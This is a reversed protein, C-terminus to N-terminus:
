CRNCYDYCSLALSFSYKLYSIPNIIAMHIHQLKACTNNFRLILDNFYRSFKYDEAFYIMNTKGFIKIIQYVKVVFVKIKCYRLNRSTKM